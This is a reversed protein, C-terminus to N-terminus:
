DIKRFESTRLEQQPVAPYIGHAILEKWVAGRLEREVAWQQGPDTKAILLYSVGTHDVRSVGLLSPGEQVEDHEAAFRQFLNRLVSEVETGHTDIPVTVEFLVRMRSGMHNTVQSIQGNPVIHLQGGFDRIKTVRLTMEEVTGSVGSLTVYDGVAFQDEFLLFFGTIIDRVLSQAGFGIAVGGIGAAALLSAIPVGLKNLITLGAILYVLYRMVSKLLPVLTKARRDSIYRKDERLLYAELRANVIRLVLASAIIILAIILAASIMSKLNEASLLQKYSSIGSELASLM